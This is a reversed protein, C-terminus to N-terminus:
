REYVTVIHSTGELFPFDAEHPAYVRFRYAVPGPLKFRYSAHYRGRADTTITRFEVWEGGSSAELVLQKGGPPIPTGRLVGTFLIRHGVSTVRPAIRLGIGAHVRLALTATAVPVTDDVHSRYAFRLAGSSVGRPLTLAWGGTSDTRVGALRVTKAGQEAPTESVDLAAGSIPQGTTSTLRGTIRDAQGYRSTRTSKATSQWRATLRAQDSANTGNAPGRLAIPSGPGISGATAEGSPPGDTAITGDYAVATDGAADTALVQLHHQGAPIQTTNVDLSVNEIAPCPQPAAFAMTASASPALNVCLGGNTNPVKQLVQQGDVLVTASYVGGGSDSATFNITDTGTLTGAALLSGTVNAVAPVTSDLLAFSGGSVLARAEPDATGPCPYELDQGPDCSVGVTVSDVGSLEGAGVTRKAAGEGLNRYDYNPDSQGTHEVFVAGFGDACQLGNPGNAVTCPGSFADLQLSYGLISLGAPVFYTMTDVDGNRYNGTPDPGMTLGFSGEGGGACSAGYTIYEGEAKGVTWGRTSIASGSPGHCTLATFTGGRAPAPGPGALLCAALVGVAMRPRWRGWEDERRFSAVIVSLGSRM